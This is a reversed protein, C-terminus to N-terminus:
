ARDAVNLATPDDRTGRNAQRDGPRIDHRFGVCDRHGGTPNYRGVDLLISVGDHDYSAAPTHRRDATV